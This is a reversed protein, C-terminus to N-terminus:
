QEAEIQEKRSIKNALEAELKAKKAKDKQSPILSKQLRSIRSRLSQLERLKAGSLGPKKPTQQAPPDGVVWNDYEADLEPVITGMIETAHKAREDDTQALVMQAHVHGHRKHLEKARATSITTKVPEKIEEQAPAPTIQSVLAKELPTFEPTPTKSLAGALKGLEYESPKSNNFIIEHFRAMIIRTVVAPNHEKLLQVGSAFDSHYKNKWVELLTM